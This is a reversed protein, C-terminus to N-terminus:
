KLLVMKISKSYEPTVLRAIYIGSPFGRGDWQVEHYRPEMYGDVLRAVERGLLDYVILLVESAHPLDYCITTVPNFPNPHSRLLRPGAPMPGSPEPLGVTSDPGFRIISVSYPPSFIEVAQDAEATTLPIRCAVQRVADYRYTAYHYMGAPVEISVSLDEDSYKHILIVSIGGDVRRIAFPQVTYLKVDMGGHHQADSRPPESTICGIIRAGNVLGAIEILFRWSHYPALEEFQPYWSLIGFGGITEWHLTM